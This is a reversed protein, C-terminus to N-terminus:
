DKAKALFDYGLDFAAINGATFKEKGKDKFFEVMAETSKERDLDELLSAVVGAAIVNAGKPNNISRALEDFPVQIVEIDDRKVYEKYDKIMDSNVILTGGTRMQEVFSLAVANMALVIDAEELAPTGVHVPDVKVICYARGGRMEAGYAPIWIPYADSNLAANAIILGTTLVGQGGFGSFVMEKM